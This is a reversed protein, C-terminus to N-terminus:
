APPSPQSARASYRITGDDLVEAFPTLTAEDGRGPGLIHVVEVGRALLYDTVIRRHCRWPVAEACLIATRKTRVVALLEDLAQAFAPTLAYDAYGRFAEVQWGTNSSDPLSRRRGGLAEFHRYGIGAEHLSAALAAKGFHPHARSGPYHRIDAVLEIAFARLLDLFAELSRNSHGITFVTM